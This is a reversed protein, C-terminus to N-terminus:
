FYTWWQGSGNWPRNKVCPVTSHICAGQRFKSTINIMLECRIEYKHLVQLRSFIGWVGGRHKQRTRYFPGNHWPLNSLRHSKDHWRRGNGWVLIGIRAKTRRGVHCRKRFHVAARFNLAMFITLVESQTSCCTNCDNTKEVVFSTGRPSSTFHSSAIVDRKKFKAGPRILFFFLPRSYEEM